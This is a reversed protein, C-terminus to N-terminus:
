VIQFCPEPYPVRVGGGGLLLLGGGNGLLLLGGLCFLHLRSSALLALGEAIGSNDGGVCTYLIRVTSPYFQHLPHITNAQGKPSFIYPYM